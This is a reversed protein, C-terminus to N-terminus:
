RKSRWMCESRSALRALYTNGDVTKVAGVQISVPELDIM